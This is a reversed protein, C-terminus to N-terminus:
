ADLSFSGASSLLDSSDMWAPAVSREYRRDIESGSDAALKECLTRWTQREFELIRIADGLSKRDNRHGAAVLSRFIFEYVASVRVALDRNVERDIGGLMEAVIEQAQLLAAFALDNRGQEQYQGARNALRLAAEILLLQLRPPSATNVDTSLYQELATSQM